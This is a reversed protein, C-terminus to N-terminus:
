KDTEVALLKIQKISEPRLHTTYKEVQPKTTKDAQLVLKKETQGREPKEGEGSTPIDVQLKSTKGVQTSATKDMPPTKRFFVSDSLESTIHHEDLRKNM